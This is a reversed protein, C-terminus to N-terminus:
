NKFIQLTNYNREFNLHGKEYRINCKYNQIREGLSHGGFLLLGSGMVSPYAEPPLQHYFAMQLLIPPFLILPSLSVSEEIACSPM